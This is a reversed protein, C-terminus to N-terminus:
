VASRHSHEVALHSIQLIAHVDKIKGNRESWYAPELHLQLCGASIMQSQEGEPVSQMM